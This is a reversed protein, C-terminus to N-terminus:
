ESRTEIVLKEILQQDKFVHLSRIQQALWSSFYAQDRKAKLERKITEHVSSLPPIGAPTKKLVIMIHFGYPSQITESPKGIPLSFAKDFVELTGKEVWGVLGGAKGEPTISFQKALEEFSKKQKLAARIHDADSNEALVIQQLLIREQQRYRQKNEEYYRNIESEAPTTVQQQIKELAMKELLRREVSQQWQGISLGQHSLEERFSFDDPFGGRVAKVEAEIAERSPQLNQKQAWMRLISSMVFDNLIAEKVREVNKPDKATLADYKSLRHALEDAFQKINMEQSDVRIVVRQQVTNDQWTCAQLLIAGVFVANRLLGGWGIM